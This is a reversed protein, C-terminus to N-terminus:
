SPNFTFSAPDGSPDTVKDIIIHGSKTNTYTCTVSGGAKLDINATAGSKTGSSGSSGDGNCVLGTLEWGALDGETVSYSGPVVNSFTKTNSLTPDNDDDLSFGSLGSGTTTFAFDQANDPVADKIITITGRQVNTFVCKVTEGAEVHFTATRNPVSGTSNADDCNISGLDFPPTPDTETSTYTGPVLDDVVIQGGDQLTGHADGTFVFNGAAGDPSTQKEVIIKGLKTNTYTCTINENADVHLTAKRAALDVSGNADNCTLGTLKWHAVLAETVTYDGPPVQDFVKTDSLTPDNDDDLSFGALPAGGTTTFDFDTSSNPVADKIITVKGCNNLDIPFPDVRDKLQSSSVDGGARTRISGSSLGPCSTDIGLSHLDISAEAFEFQPITYGFGANPLDAFNTASHVSSSKTIDDVTVTQGNGCSTVKTVQYVIVIPNSGGNSYELSIILDGVSRDPRAAGSTFVKFPLKNLEFDVHTDGNNVIREAGMYFFASSGVFKAYAMVHGIDDKGTVPGTDNGWTCTDLEKAGGIYQSDSNSNIPDAIIVSHPPNVPDVVGNFSAGQLWDDGN